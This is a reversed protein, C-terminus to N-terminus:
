KCAEGVYTVHSWVCVYVRLHLSHVCLRALRVRTSEDFTALKVTQVEQTRVQIYRRGRWMLAGDELYTNQLEDDDLIMEGEALSRRRILGLFKLLLLIWSMVKIKIKVPKMFKAGAPRPFSVMAGAPKDEGSIPNEFPDFPLAGIM